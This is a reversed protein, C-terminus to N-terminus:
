YFKQLSRQEDRQTSSKKNILLAFNSKQKSVMREILQGFQDM